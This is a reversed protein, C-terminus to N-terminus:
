SDVRSLCQLHVSLTVHSSHLAYQRYPFAVDLGLHEELGHHRGRPSVSDYLGIGQWIKIIIINSHMFYIKYKVGIVEIPVIHKNKDKQISCKAAFTM